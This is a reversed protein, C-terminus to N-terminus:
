LIFGSDPHSSSPHSCVNEATPAPLWVNVTVATLLPPVPSADDIVTVTVAAVGGAVGPLKM